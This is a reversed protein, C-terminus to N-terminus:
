TTPHAAGSEPPGAIRRRCRVRVGLLTVVHRPPEFLAPRWESTHDVYGAKWLSSADLPGVSEWGDAWYRAVIQAAVLEITGVLEASGTPIGGDPPPAGCDSYQYGRLRQAFVRYEFGQEEVTQGQGALRRRYVSGLLDALRSLAALM